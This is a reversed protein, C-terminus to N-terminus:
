LAALEERCLMSDLDVHIADSNEVDDGFALHSWMTPPIDIVYDAWDSGYLERALSESTIWRLTPAEPTGEVAFVKPVSQVKLLVTGSKPLLPPGLPLSAITEGDVVQVDDFSTEWTFFTQPNPIPRRRGMSDVYYVTDSLVTRLYSGAAFLSSEQEQLVQNPEDQWVVPETAMGGLQLGLDTSEIFFMVEKGRYREPMQWMWPGTPVFLDSVSEWAGGEVAAFIHVFPVDGGAQWTVQVGGAEDVEAHADTITYDFARPAIAVASSAQTRFNWVSSSSIGAYANGWIDEFAGADVTVYYEVGKTLSGPLAVTITETGSGQVAGSTVDIIVVAEDDSTRRVIIDGSGVSVDENFNLTLEPRTGVGVAGDVPSVSTLTPATSEGTISLTVDDFMAGRMGLGGTGDASWLEIRVYRMGAGYNGLGAGVQTWSSPVDQAGMYTFAMTGHGEGEIAFLIDYTDLAAQGDTYEKVWAAMQVSTFTDLQERTFGAALLDVRQMLYSTERSAVFAGTGGHAGGLEVTWPDTGSYTWGSLDGTEADPNTVAVSTVAFVARMPVLVLLIFMCVLIKKWFLMPCSM